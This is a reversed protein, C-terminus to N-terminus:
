CEPGPTGPRPWPHVTELGVHNLTGKGTLGGPGSRDCQEEGWGAGYGWGVRPGCCKVGELVGRSEGSVSTLAQPRDKESSCLGWLGQNQERRM